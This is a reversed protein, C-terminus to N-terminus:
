YFIYLTNIVAFFTQKLQGVGKGPGSAEVSFDGAM